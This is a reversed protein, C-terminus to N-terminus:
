TLGHELAYRTAGSRNNVQIKGYISRLHAHVTRRSLYLREAIEANNLGAAVLRLVDVERPTLDDPYAAEGPHQERAQLAMGIVVELPMARGATWASDWRPVDTRARVAAMNRENYERDPPPLPAGTAERLAEAASWLTAAGQAKGEQAAACALGELCQAIIHKDGVKSGLVLSEKLRPVAAATDGDRLEATGLSALAYAIGWEQQLETCIALSQQFLSRAEKYNEEYQAITGLDRLANASGWRAGISEIVALAEQLLQRAVPYDGQERAVLSLNGLASAIGPMYKLDRSLALSETLFTRASEHSGQILALHGAGLLANARTIM